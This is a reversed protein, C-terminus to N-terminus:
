GGLRNLIETMTRDSLLILFHKELLSTTIGLDHDFICGQLPLGEHGM